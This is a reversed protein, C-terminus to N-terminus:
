IRARPSSSTFTTAGTTGRQCRSFLRDDVAASYLARLAPIGDGSPAAGSMMRM